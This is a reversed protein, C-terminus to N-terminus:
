EGDVVLICDATESLINDFYQQTNAGDKVYLSITVSQGKDAYQSVASNIEEITKPEGNLTPGSATQEWPDKDYTIVPQMAGGEVTYITGSSANEYHYYVKGDCIYFKAFPSYEFEGNSMQPAGSIEYAAGDKYGYFHQVQVPNQGAEPQEAAVTYLEYVGDGDFDYVRVVSLGCIGTCVDERGEEGSLMLRGSGYQETLHAIVDAYAKFEARPELDDISSAQSSSAGGNSSTISKDDKKECAASVSVVAFLCVAFLIFKKMFYVGKQLM